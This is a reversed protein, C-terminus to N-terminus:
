VFLFVFALGRFVSSGLVLLGDSNYYYCLLVVEDSADWVAQISEVVFGFGGTAVQSSAQVKIESSIVLKQVIHSEFEKM